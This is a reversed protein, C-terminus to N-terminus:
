NVGKLLEFVYQTFDIDFMYNDLHKPNFNSDTCYMTGKAYDCLGGIDYNDFQQNIIEVDHNYTDETSDMPTNSIDNKFNNYIIEYTFYGNYVDLENYPILYKKMLNYFEIKNVYVLKM